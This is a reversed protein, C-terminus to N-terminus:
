GGTTLRTWERTILRRLKNDVPEFLWLTEEVQATPYIGPHNRLEETVLPTAAKNPSPYYVYNVIDASVQADLLNNMFKYANDKNKSDKPMAMMDISIGAGEKPIVYDVKVGNGAEVARETAIMADGTWTVAVCLDGNALDTLARAPNFYRVHPIIKSLMESAQRYDSTDKSNPNKGMYRLASSFIETPADAFAVGCKELKEMNKPDFVLAWSDVPADKGLVEEVKARNLAIGTTQSLYPIGYMNGPDVTELLKMTAPNLNGYNTLKSKDLPEYVGAKIHNALFDHSPFVVDYGSRGSLLKAELVENSEYVDYTVAVDSKKEFNPVTDEAIFDYWNYVFLEGNKKDSGSDAEASAFSAAPMVAALVSTVAAFQAARFSSLFRVM